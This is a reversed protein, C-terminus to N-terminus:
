TVLRLKPRTKGKDTADPENKTAPSFPPPPVLDLVVQHIASWPLKVTYLADFSLVLTVGAEDFQPRNDSHYAADLRLVLKEPFRALVSAPLGSDGLDATAAIFTFDVGLGFALRFAQEAQIGYPDLLIPQDTPTPSREVPDPLAVEQIGVMDELSLELAQTWTLLQDVTLPEKGALVNRVTARKEGVRKALAATNLGKAKLANRLWGLVTESPRKAV